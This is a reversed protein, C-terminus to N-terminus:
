HGKKRWLELLSELAVNEASPANSIVVDEPQIKLGSESSHKLTELETETYVINDRFLHIIIGGNKRILSAENEFRVDDIVLNSKPYKEFEKSMRWVWFEEYVMNRVFETATRQMLVRPSIGEPLGEIQQDKLIQDKFYEIPLGTMVSLAQKLPEGFSLVTFLHNVKLTEATTTKGVKMKGTFGILKRM